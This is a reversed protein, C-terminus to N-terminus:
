KSKNDATNVSAKIEYNLLPSIVQELHHAIPEIEPFIWVLSVSNVTSSMSKGYYLFFMHFNWSDILSPAVRLKIQECFFKMHYKPSLPNPAFCNMFKQRLMFFVFMKEACLSLMNGLCYFKYVYVAKYTTCDLM